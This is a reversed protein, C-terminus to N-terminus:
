LRFTSMRKGLSGSDRIWWVICDTLVKVIGGQQRVSVRERTLRGLWEVPRDGFVRQVSPNM